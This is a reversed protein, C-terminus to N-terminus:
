QLGLLKQLLPFMNPHNEFFGLFSHNKTKSKIVTLKLPDSWESEAGHIDKSKVKIEFEGKENWTHSDSVTEGSKNPGIWKGSSNDGWDFLYYLDDGNPDTTSTFYDNSENVKVSYPGNPTQPKLPNYNKGYTKFCFDQLDILSWDQWYQFASGNKYPDNNGYWWAIYHVEEMERHDANFMIYYTEGPTLNIDTFDFEYWQSGYSLEGGNVYIDTLDDGELDDRISIKIYDPSGYKYVYLDVKTLSDMTPSFSQAYCDYGWINGSHKLQQQDLIDGNCFFVNATKEYTISFEKKNAINGAFVNSAMTIVLTIVFLKLIHKNM